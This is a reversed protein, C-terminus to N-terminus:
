ICFGSRAWYASSLFVQSRTKIKFHFTANVHLDVDPRYCLMIYEVHLSYSLSAQSIHLAGTTACVTLEAEVWM